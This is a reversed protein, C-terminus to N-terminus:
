LEVRLCPYYVNLMSLILVNIHILIPTFLFHCMLSLLILTHHHHEVFASTASHYMGTKHWAM